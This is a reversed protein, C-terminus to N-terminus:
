VEDSNGKRSQGQGGAGAGAAIVAGAQALLANIDAPKDSFIMTNSRNGMVSYMEIFDAGGVCFSVLPSSYLPISVNQGVLCASRARVCTGKAVNLKAAEQGQAGQLAKAITEIARAQAHARMEIVKAEGEAELTLQIKRAEAENTV